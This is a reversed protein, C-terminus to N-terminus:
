VLAKWDAMRAQFDADFDDNPFLKPLVELAHMLSTIAGSLTKDLDRLDPGFALSEFVGNADTNIHRDLAIVTAHAADGSFGRYILDYLGKMKVKVAVAEWSLKGPGNEGYKAKIEVIVEELKRRDESALAPGVDPDNLLANAVGQRHKHYDNTLKDIFTPSDIIGGIAFATEACNRVLTRADAIMGREALLIAGQYSQLARTLMLLTTLQQNSKATPAAAHLMRMGLRNIEESLAFWKAHAARLVAISDPINKGLFGDITFARDEM